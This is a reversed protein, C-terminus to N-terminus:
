MDDEHFKDAFLKALAEVVAEADEGVAELFVQRGMDAGLSMIELVEGADAKQREETVLTVKARFQRVLNVVLLAARLHLGQRNSVTVTRTAKSESM